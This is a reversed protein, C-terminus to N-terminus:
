SRDKPNPISEAIDILRRADALHLREVMRGGIGIVGRGSNAPDDFAAVIDRAAEVEEATPGFAANAREVQSPHILTKGDFGM